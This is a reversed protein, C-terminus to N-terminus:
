VHVGWQYGYWRWADAIQTANEDLSYGNLVDLYVAENINVDLNRMTKLIAFYDETYLKKLQNKFDERVHELKYDYNYWYKKHFLPTVLNGRKQQEYHKGDMLHQNANYFYHLRGTKDKYAFGYFDKSFLDKNAIDNIMNQREEKLWDMYIQFSRQTINRRQYGMDVLGNFLQLYDECFIGEISEKIPDLIAVATDNRREKTVYEINNWLDEPYQNRLARCFHIKVTQEIQEDWGAPVLTREHWVQLPLPYTEEISLQKIQSYLLDENKGVLYHRTKDQWYVTGYIEYEVEFRRLEMMKGVDEAVKFDRFMQNLRNMGVTM